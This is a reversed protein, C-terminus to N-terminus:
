SQVVLGQAEMSALASLVGAEITGEPDAFRESLRLVLGSVTHHADLLDWILPASGSLQTPVGDGRHQVLLRGGSLNREIVAVKKYTVEDGTTTSSM